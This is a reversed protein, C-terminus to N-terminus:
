SEYAKLYRYGFLPGNTADGCDLPKFTFGLQLPANEPAELYSVGSLDCESFVDIIYSATPHLYKVIRVKRNPIGTGGFTWKIGENGETGAGGVKLLTDGNSPQQSLESHTITNTSVSKVWALEEYDGNTPSIKILDGAAINTGSTAVTVTTSTSSSVTTQGDGPATFTPAITNGMNLTWAQYSPHSVTIPLELDEGVKIIRKTTKISTGTKIDAVEINHAAAFSSVYGLTQWYELGTDTASGDPDAVQIITSSIYALEATKAFFDGTNKYTHTLSTM